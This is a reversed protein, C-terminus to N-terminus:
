NVLSLILSLRTGDSYDSNRTDRITRHGNRRLVCDFGYPEISAIQSERSSRMIIEMSVRLGEFRNAM